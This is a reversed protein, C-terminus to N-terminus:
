YGISVNLGYSDLIDRLTHLADEKVPSLEKFFYDRGLSEYKNRGWEHYGLLSVKEVCIQALFDALDKMHEESDNYGPIIPIRIWLRKKKEATRKLNDIILKNDSGTGALHQAPNIHKIDYLVLDTYDLIKELVPWPAYGCTDLVTHFSKEKCIKLVSLAFEPQSLPEGGSLTVGGDSNWYFMEDKSAEDIVEQVTKSEGTCTIAQPLCVEVCKMCRDCRQRDITIDEKNMIIAGQSCAALCKGCKNCRKKRFFLEPFLNQSEPNSCWRCKLPCGKMFVTTRIGPGDHISYRQINFIEGGRDNNNKM